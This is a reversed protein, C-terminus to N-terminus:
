RRRVDNDLDLLRRLGEDYSEGKRLIQKLAERTSIRVLISTKKEEGEMRMGGNPASMQAVEVSM